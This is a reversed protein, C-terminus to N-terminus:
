INEFFVKMFVMISIIEFTCLYVIVTIIPYGFNNIMIVATGLFRLLLYALFAALAIFQLNSSLHFYYTDIVLISGIILAFLQNLSYQYDIIITATNISNHFYFYAYDLLLKLLFLAVVFGYLIFFQSVSSFLSTKIHLSLYSFLTVSFILTSSFFSSLRFVTDHNYKESQWRQIPLLVLMKIQLFWNPIMIYVFAVIVLTLLLSFKIIGPIENRLILECLLTYTNM